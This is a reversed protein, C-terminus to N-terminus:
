KNEFDPYNPSGFNLYHLNSGSRLTLENRRSFNPTFQHLQHMKTHNIYNPARETTPTTRHLKTIKNEFDPYNPSGFNLYHLNSGSRLTLENRRSFNPTFQHLQHMKTHNIYNPARETTPTTRHLKTIKNEFDPYNPSGFNLYHLNSGSRLTLENRYVIM